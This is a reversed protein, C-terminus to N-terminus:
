VNNLKANMIHGIELAKKKVFNANEGEFLNDTSWNWYALWLEFLHTNLPYTRNRDIHVWMLGGTYSGTQFLWNDWFNYVREVHEKWNKMSPEFVPIMAPDNLLKDYFADVLRIIDARNEIDKM